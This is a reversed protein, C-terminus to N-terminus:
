LNAAINQAVLPTLAVGMGGCASVSQTSADLTTVHNGSTHQGGPFGMIGAWHHDVSFKDHGIIEKARKVLYERVEATPSLEITEENARFKDRGGGILLRGDVFKFYDYGDNLFGLHHSTAATVPSTVIVQGRGPVIHSQGQLHKAFANVCILARAYRVTARAGEGQGSGTSPDTAVHALAGMGGAVQTAGVGFAIRVGGATAHERLRTLLHVPNVGRDAANFFVERQRGGFNAPRVEFASAEGRARLAENLRECLARKAPTIADYDASGCPDTPLNPFEGLALSLGARRKTFQEFIADFGVGRSDALMESINGSTLFGANRTSAGYGLLDREVVLTGKALAPNRKAIWYALWCGMFGAGVILLEVRAPLATAARQLPVGVEWYSEHRM